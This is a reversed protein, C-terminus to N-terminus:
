APWPLWARLRFGNATRGHELWGGAIAAREALGVLGTGSGPIATVAAGVPAPNRVEVTIGGGATGHVTVTVPQGPAHKRANTLGEQVIRYAGRGTAAPVASPDAVTCDLTVQEGARRSEEVLGPLERLGPQPREPPRDPRDVRLVGIVDRLDELVQHASERIVGAARAITEPSATPRLELAGAHLSLLSIRHALVDHMERAIRTRELHRAQAVRLEQEAEAREARDRLSAVLQRRARVYMGWALAATVCVIGLSVQSVDTVASDPRVLQSLPSVLAYGAVVPAVVAFRRHAAVNFLAIFSVLSASLAYVSFIGVVVAFGVPRRRRLPIGLCSLGGLAADVTLTVQDLHREVGDVVAVATLGAALLFLLIDVLWGPVLARKAPVVAITM